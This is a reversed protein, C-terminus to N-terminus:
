NSSIHGQDKGILRDELICAEIKEWLYCAVRIPNM